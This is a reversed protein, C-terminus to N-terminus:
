IKLIYKELKENFSKKYKNSITLEKGNRLTITSNSIHKIFNINIIHSNHIRVFQLNELSREFIKLTKSVTKKVDGKLHINTYNDNGELIIIEDPIIFDVGTRTALAIRIRSYDIFEDNNDITDM